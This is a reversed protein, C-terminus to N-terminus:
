MQKGGDLIEYDPVYFPLAEEVPIPTELVEPAKDKFVWVLLLIGLAIAIVSAILVKITKKNEKSM